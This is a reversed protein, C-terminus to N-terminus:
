FIPPLFHVFPLSLLFNRWSSGDVIVQVPFTILILICSPFLFPLSTFLFLLFKFSLVQHRTSSSKVIVRLKIPRFSLSLLPCSSFSVPWVLRFSFYLPTFYILILYVLFIFSQKCSPFVVNISSTPSSNYLSLINVSIRGASSTPALSPINLTTLIIATATHHLQQMWKGIGQYKVYTWSVTKLVFLNM